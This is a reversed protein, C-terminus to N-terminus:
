RQSLREHLFKRNEKQTAGRHLRGGNEHIGSLNRHLDVQEGRPERRFPWLQKGFSNGLFCISKTSVSVRVLTLSKCTHPISEFFIGQQVEYSLTKPFIM